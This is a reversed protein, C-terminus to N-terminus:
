PLPRSSRAQEVLALVGGLTAQWSRGVQARLAGLVLAAYVEPQDRRISVAERLIRALSAAMSLFTSNGPSLVRELMERLDEVSEREERFAFGSPLDEPDHWPANLVAARGSPRYAHVQVNLGDIARVIPVVAGAFCGGHPEWLSPLLNYDAAAMLDDFFDIHGDLAAVHEPHQAALDEIASQIAESGADESKTTAFVVFFPLDPAQRLLDRVAEVIALHSKQSVRRGMAVMIVKNEVKVRLDAPLKV